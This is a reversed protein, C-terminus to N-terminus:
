MGFGLGFLARIVIGAVIGTFPDFAATVVLTTAAIIPAGPETGNFAVQANGPLAVFSGLVFLFGAISEGPVFKGIKPLLGFLLILGM